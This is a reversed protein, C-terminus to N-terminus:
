KLIKKKLVEGLKDPCLGGGKREYDGAIVKYDKLNELDVVFAQWNRKQYNKKEVLNFKHNNYIVMDIKRPLYNQLEKVFESMKTPGTEGVSEYANGMVYVLKAKSKKIAESVGSPLLTAVVSTYLSGPGLLIFDAKEIVKKAGEFIKVEPDILLKIIRLSRDYQPRDLNGEERVIQGNSLEGVIDSKELTVPYVQGQAEVTQELARISSILSGGYKEGLVLFLNGLNHKNLKGVNEFRNRYFMQKLIPYDYFSLALVARLIDGVPLTNFEQRLIGSSGTSDTTSIVASINFKDKFKKIANLTIASGNGGGISVINKKSKM